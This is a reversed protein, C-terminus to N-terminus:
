PVEQNTTVISDRPMEVQSRDRAKAALEALLAPQKAEEWKRRALAALGGPVNMDHSFYAIFTSGIWYTFLAQIFFQLAGGVLTGVGPLGKLLSAALSGLTPSVLSTGLIGVSGKGLRALLTEAVKGDLRQHYIAALDSVMKANFGVGVAVDLIPLPSLAAAAGARWMQRNVLEWARADRLAKAQVRVRSVLRQLQQMKNNLILHERGKMAVELRDLLPDIDPELMVIEELESLDPRVRIRTRKAANTRVAVVDDPPVKYPAVRGAISGLLTKRDEDSYWDSKNLCVIMPKELTALAKIAEEEFSKMDGDLVVLILDADRAERKTLAEREEIAAPDSSRAEGLGPTDVLLVKDGSQLRVTSCAETTGGLVDSALATAGALTNLLASKGSSVTGFAVIILEGSAVGGTIKARQDDFGARLALPLERTEEEVIHSLVPIGERKQDASMDRAPGSILAMAAGQRHSAAALKIVTYVCAAGLIAAVVGIGIVYARGLNQHYASLREYQAAFHPIFEAAACGLLAVCLVWGVNKILARM